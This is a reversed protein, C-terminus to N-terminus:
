ALYSKMEDNENIYYQSDFVLHCNESGIYPYMKKSGNVPTSLCYLDSPTLDSNIDNFQIPRYGDEIYISDLGKEL